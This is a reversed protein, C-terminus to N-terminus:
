LEKTTMPEYHVKLKHLIICKEQFCGTGKKWDQFSHLHQTELHMFSQMTEM